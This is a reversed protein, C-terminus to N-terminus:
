YSNLAKVQNKYTYLVMTWDVHLDILKFGERTSTKEISECGDIHWKYIANTYIDAYAEEYLSSMEIFADSQNNIAYIVMEHDTKWKAVAHHKFVNYGSPYNKRLLESNANLQAQVGISGLLLLAMIMIRKM